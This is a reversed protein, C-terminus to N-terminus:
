RLFFAQTLCHHLHGLNGRDFRDLINAAGRRAVAEDTHALICLYWPLEQWHQLKLTLVYLVHNKGREMDLVLNAWEQEACAGRQKLALRALSLRYATDLQEFLAGAVVEPANCGRMPCALNSVASAASGFEARAVAIPVHERYQEQLHRRCPCQEVGAVMSQVVEGLLLVMDMYSGFYM